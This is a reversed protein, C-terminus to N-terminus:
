KNWRIFQVKRTNPDFSVMAPKGVRSQAELINVEVGNITAKSNKTISVYSFDCGLCGVKNIIGTGDNSLKISLSDTEFAVFPQKEASAIGATFLLLLFVFISNILQKM